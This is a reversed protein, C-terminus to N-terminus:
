NESVRFWDTM